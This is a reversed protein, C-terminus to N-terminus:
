TWGSLFLCGRAPSANLTSLAAQSITLLGSVRRSYSNHTCLLINNKHLAIHFFLSLIVVVNLNIKETEREEQTHYKVGPLMILSGKTQPAKALLCFWFDISDRPKRECYSYKISELSCLSKQPHTTNKLEMIDSSWKLTDTKNNGGRAPLAHRRSFEGLGHILKECLQLVVQLFGHVGHHAGLTFAFM